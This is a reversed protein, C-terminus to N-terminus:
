AKGGHKRRWNAVDMDMSWVRYRAAPDTLAALRDVASPTAPCPPPAPKHFSMSAALALMADSADGAAKGVNLLGRRMARLEEKPFTIKQELLRRMHRDFPRQGSSPDM